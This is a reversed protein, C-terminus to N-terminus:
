LASTDFKISQGCILLKLSIQSNFASSSKFFKPFRFIYSLENPSLLTKIAVGNPLSHISLLRFSGHKIKM